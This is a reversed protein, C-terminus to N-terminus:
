RGSRGAHERLRNLVERVREREPERFRHFPEAMFDDCIEMLSLACKLGKIHRSTHRGIEYLRQLDAIARGAAEARAADGGTAAEYGEVFLRPFANAGGSVGGQGGRRLSELLLHEPGMMVSWDPRQVRLALVRSFYDLDASSDKVGAIREIGSLRRLTDIEFWLKTCGPMNYLLVPLPLEPVLAEVYESLEPQGAPFYYPAALVVATAGADAAVAAMRVSEVFATDTIGVLVPVRGRVHDCARRIADRRLRYSLSPAEGTTGLLFIGHVGGALVHEVLRGLGEHDLADRGTLPTVLPPIIGHLNM